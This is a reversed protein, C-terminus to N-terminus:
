RAPDIIAPDIIALPPFLEAIVQQRYDFVNELDRKVGLQHAIAGLVGLPLEYNVLDVMRTGGPEASFTHPHHWLKYPGRIQVDTFVRPPSWTMIQTRWQVPFGHWKLRYDLLTGPQIDIPARTLIQFSLWHPTIKQLNGADSFFEFVEELPRPVFQERRLTYIHMISGDGQVGSRLQLM